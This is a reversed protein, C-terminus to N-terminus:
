GILKHDMMFFQIPLSSELIGMGTLQKKDTHSSHFSNSEIILTNKGNIIKNNFNNIM